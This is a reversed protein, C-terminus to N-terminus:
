LVLVFADFWPLSLIKFRTVEINNLKTPLPTLERILLSFGNSHWVKIITWIIDFNLFRNM